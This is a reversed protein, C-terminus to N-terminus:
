PFLILLSPHFREHFRPWLLGESPRLVNRWPETCKSIVMLAALNFSASSAPNAHCSLPPHTRVIQNWEVSQETQKTKQKPKNPKNSTRVFTYTLIAWTTVRKRSSLHCESSIQTVLHKPDEQHNPSPITTGSRHNKWTKKMTKRSHQEQHEQVGLEQWSWVEQGSEAIWWTKPKLFKCFGKVYNILFKGLYSGRLSKAFFDMLDLIFGITQIIELWM